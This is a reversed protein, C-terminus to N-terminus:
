AQEPEQVLVVCYCRSSAMRMQKRNMPSLKLQYGKIGRDKNAKLRGEAVLAELVEKVPVGPPCLESGFLTTLIYAEVPLEDGDVKLVGWSALPSAPPAATGNGARLTGFRSRNSSIRDIVYGSHEKAQMEATKYGDRWAQFCKGAFVSAMGAPWPLVGFHIALEGAVAVLACRRAVRKIQSDASGCHAAMWDDTRRRLSGEFKPAGEAAIHNILARIFAPGATGYTESKSAANIQNAYSTVLAIREEKPKTPAIEDDFVGFDSGGAEAPVDAMRIKVGEKVPARRGSASSIHEEFTVEGTSLYLLRWTLVPRKEMGRSARVKARANAMMYGIQELKDAPAEGVDDLILPFHSHAACTLELGNDTTRWSGVEGQENAPGWISCLARACTSKGKSSKGYFHFGGSEADKVFELLPAAFGLCLAFGIRSSFMSPRGIREKWDELTGASSYAPEARPDGTYVIKEGSDNEGIIGIRPISFAEGHKIWGHRDVGLMRARTPFFNIFNGIYKNEGQTGLSHRIELGNSALYALVQAPNTVLAAPIMGERENGDQDVWRLVLRWDAGEATRAKAVVELPGCVPIPSADRKKLFVGLPGFSYEDGNPLTFFRSGDEHVQVGNPQADTGADEFAQIGASKPKEKASATKVINAVVIDKTVEVSAPASTKEQMTVATM